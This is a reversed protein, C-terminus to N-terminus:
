YNKMMSKLERMGDAFRPCDSNYYTLVSQRMSENNDFCFEYQRDKAKNMEVISRGKVYYLYSALQIDTTKYLTM